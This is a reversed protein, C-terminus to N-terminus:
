AMAGTLDMARIVKKTEADWSDAVTKSDAGQALQLLTVIAQAMRRHDSLWVARQGLLKTWADRVQKKHGSAYDGEGVILHYVHWNKSVEALLDTTILPGVDKRGFVRQVDTDVLYHPPNEDGVTFLYGKEGRKEMSDLATYNAAFYWPLTYSEYSNGGGGKELFLKELQHAIRIDAEFQTVQLPSKDVEADGVGMVMLHPDSIPRRAYVETMLTNLGEKAMVGLLMGMSGTVDLGVILPTARPNDASDRSERLTIHKPDLEEAIKRQEYIEEVTKTAYSQSTAYNTWTHSEFRGSGM